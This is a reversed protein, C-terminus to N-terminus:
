KSDQNKLATYAMEVALYVASSVYAIGASEAMSVVDNFAQKRKGDDDLITVAAKAVAATAFTKISGLFLAKEATFVQGCWDEFTKLSPNSFLKQFWQAIAKFM